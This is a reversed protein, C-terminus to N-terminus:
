RNAAALAGARGAAFLHNVLDIAGSGWVGVVALAGRGPPTLLTVRVPQLGSRESRSLTTVVTSEGTPACLNGVQAVPSLSPSGTGRSGANIVLSAM